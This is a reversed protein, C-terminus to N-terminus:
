PNNYQNFSNEYPLPIELIKLIRRIHYYVHFHYISRIMPEKTNLHEVSVGCASSACFVTFNLQSQWLTFKYLDWDKFRENEVRVAGLPYNMFVNPFKVQFSDSHLDNEAVTINQIYLDKASILQLYRGGNPKYSADSNYRYIRDM